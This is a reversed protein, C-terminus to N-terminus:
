IRLELGDVARGEKGIAHDSEAGVAIRGRYGRVDPDGEEGVGFTVRAIGVLPTFRERGVQRRNDHCAGVRCAIAVGRAGFTPPSKRDPAGVLWERRALECAGRAGLTAIPALTDVASRAVAGRARTLSTDRNDDVAGARTIKLGLPAGELRALSSVRVM